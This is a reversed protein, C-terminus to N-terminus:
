RGQKHGTYLPNFSILAFTVLAFSILNHGTYLPNFCTITWPVNSISNENIVRTYPISVSYQPYLFRHKCFNIVRTYPISVLIRNLLVM